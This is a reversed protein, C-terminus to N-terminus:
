EQAVSESLCPPLIQDQFIPSPPKISLSASTEPLLMPIGQVSRNRESIGASFKRRWRSVATGTAGEGRAGRSLHYMVAVICAM